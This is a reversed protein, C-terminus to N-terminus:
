GADEKRAATLGVASTSVAAGVALGWLSLDALFRAQQRTQVRGTASDATRCGYAVAAVVLLFVALGATVEGALTRRRAPALELLAAACWAVVVLLAEGTGLLDPLSPPRDGYYRRVLYALVLPLAGLGLGVLLWRTLREAM